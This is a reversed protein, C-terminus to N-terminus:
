GGLNHNFDFDRMYDVLSSICFRTPTGGMCVGFFMFMRACMRTCIYIVMVELVM